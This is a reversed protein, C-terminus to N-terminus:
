SAKTFYPHIIAQRAVMMEMLDFGMYALTKKCRDIRDNVIDKFEEVRIELSEIADALLVEREKESTGANECIKKALMKIIEGISRGKESFTLESMKLGTKACVMNRFMKVDSKRELYFLESFIDNAPMKAVSTGPTHDKLQHTRGFNAMTLELIDKESYEDQFYLLSFFDCADQKISIELRQVDQNQYQRKYYYYYEKSIEGKKFRDKLAINRNYSMMTYRSNKITFGTPQNSFNNNYQNFQPRGKLVWILKENDRFNPFYDFPYYAGFIDQRIDARIVKFYAGFTDNFYRVLKRSTLYANARIFFHGTFELSLTPRKPLLRNNMPFNSFFAKIGMEKNQFLVWDGGSKEVHLGAEKLYSIIINRHNHNKADFMMLEGIFKLYDLNLDSRRYKM